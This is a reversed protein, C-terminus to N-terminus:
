KVFVWYKIKFYHNKETIIIAPANIVSEIERSVSFCFSVDKHNDINGFAYESHNYLDKNHNYESFHHPVQQLGIQNYYKGLTRKLLNLYHNAEFDGMYLCSLTSRDDGWYHRSFLEYDGQEDWGDRRRDYNAFSKMECNALAGDIPGSFVPMSYANHNCVIKGTTESRKGFIEAYISQIVSTKTRKLIDTLRSWDIDNNNYLPEEPSLTESVKKLLARCEKENYGVCVPIYIWLPDTGFAVMFGRGSKFVDKGTNHNENPEEEDNHDLASTVELIESDIAKRNTALLYIFNQADSSVEGTESGEVFANYIYSEALMFPALCPLIIKRINAIKLLYQVGNIHDTHFHSIFLFDIMPKPIGGDLSNVFYNISKEVISRSKGGCDYVAVFRSNGQLIETYFAGHGVPWFTRDLRIDTM